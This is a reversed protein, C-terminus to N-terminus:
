THVSKSLMLLLNAADDTSHNTAASVEIHRDDNTPSSCSAFTTSSMSPAHCHVIMPIHSSSTSRVTTPPFMMSPPALTDDPKQLALSRIQDLQLTRTSIGIDEVTSAAEEKRVRRGEATRAADTPEVRKLQLVSSISDSGTKALEQNVWLATTSSGTASFSRVHVFGYYNLQRRFTKFNKTNFYKPLIKKAFSATSHLVLLGKRWEVIGSGKEAQLMDHLRRVFKNLRAPTSIHSLGTPSNSAAAPPKTTKEASTKTPDLCSPVMGGRPLIPAEAECVVAKAPITTQPKKGGGKNSATPLPAPLLSAPPPRITGAKIMVAEISRGKMDQNLPPPAVLSENIDGAQITDRPEGTPTVVPLLDTGTGTTGTADADASTSTSVVREGDDNTATAIKFVSENDDDNNSVSSALSPQHINFTTM